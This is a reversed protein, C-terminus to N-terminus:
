RLSGVRAQQWPEPAGVWVPMRLYAVCVVGMGAMCLLRVPTEAGLVAPVALLCCLLTTGAVLASSALHPWGSAVLRQYVHLKHPQYWRQGARLRLQLTYATDALFVLLPAAAVEIRGGGLLMWTALTAWAAGLGYSGVDGIFARAVPVNFPLFGLLAGAVAVAFIAQPLGGGKVAVAAFWGATVLGHLGLLGNTGDMFNTINVMAVVAVTLIPVWVWPREAAIVVGTSVLLGGLVQAGLRSPPSVGYLDDALGITAFTLGATVALLLQFVPSLLSVAPDASAVVAAVLGALVGPIMAIGAGRAVPREHLSREVPVDVIQARRLLPLLLFISVATVVASVLLASLLWNV